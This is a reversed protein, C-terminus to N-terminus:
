WDGGFPLFGMEKEMDDPSKHHKRKYPSDAPKRGNEGRDADEFDARMDATMQELAAHDVLRILLESISSCDQAQGLLRLRRYVEPLLVETMREFITQVNATEQWEGMFPKSVMVCRFGNKKKHETPVDQLVYVAQAVEKEVTPDALNLADKWGAMHEFAIMMQNIDASLNHSDDMYRIAVDCMMQIIEYRSLGRKKALRDLRTLAEQSVKTALVDYNKKDSM